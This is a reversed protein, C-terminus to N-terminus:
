TAVLSQLAERTEADTSYIATGVMGRTLLVKYVHRVLLDFRRDPVATANRFNPDKNESRVSIFRGQRWVLDPGMIVGNWDYEFGQATYVCGVQDFGGDQTAWLASPPANDISMQFQGHASM